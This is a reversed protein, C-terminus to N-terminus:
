KSACGKMTTGDDVVGYRGQPRVQTAGVTKAEGIGRPSAESDLRIVNV